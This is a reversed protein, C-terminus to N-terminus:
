DSVELHVGQLRGRKGVFVVQVLVPPLEVVLAGVRLKHLLPPCRELGVKDLHTNTASDHSKLQEQKRNTTRTNTKTQAEKEKM